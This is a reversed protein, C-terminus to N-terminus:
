LIIYAELEEMSSLETIKHKQNIFVVPSETLEYKQKLLELSKSGSDYAIPILIVKDEYKKKLDLLVKSLTIQKAQTNISPEMYEYLYVVVNTKQPCKEQLKIADRWLATRLLDYRKHVNVIDETIKNSADYKELTKAEEYVRDAFGITERLVFDCDFEFMNLIDSGLQIDFIETESNIYFREMRSTRYNEFFIGLIIGIFFIILAIILAQWFTHKNGKIIQEM